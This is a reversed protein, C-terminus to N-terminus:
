FDVQLRAWFEQIMSEDVMDAPDDEPIDNQIALVVRTHDVPYILAVLGLRLLGDHDADTNRDYGEIRVGAGFHDGINQVAALYWGMNGTGDTTSTAPVDRRDLNSALAFEGYVDLEGIGVDQTFRVDLSAGWRTFDFEAQTEDIMMTMPDDAIPPAYGRGVIGSVGVAVPGFSVGVRGVFDKMNNPDEGVDLEFGEVAPASIPQGNVVAIAYEFVDGVDGSLRVGVDREGPFWRRLYEAREPFARDRSSMVVDVGWPYKFLGATLRTEIEETWPIVLTAEADRLAVGSPSADIQLVVEALSYEFKIKVRGRRVEFLDQNDNADREAEETRIRLQAQVYGSVQLHSWFDMMEALEEDDEPAATEGEAAVPQAGVEAQSPESVPPPDMPQQMAPDPMAPDQATAADQVPSAPPAALPEGPPPQAVVPFSAMVVVVFFFIEIRTRM